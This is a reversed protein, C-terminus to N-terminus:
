LCGAKRPEQRREGDEFGAIYRREDRQSQTAEKGREGILTRTIINSAVLYDLIIEGNLSRLKIM